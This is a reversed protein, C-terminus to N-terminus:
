AGEIQQLKITVVQASRWDLMAFARQGLEYAPGMGADREALVVDAVAVDDVLVGALEAAFANDALTEARM